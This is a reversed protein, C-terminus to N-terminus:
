QQYIYHHLQRKNEEFDVDWLASVGNKVTQNMTKNAPIRLKTEMKAGGSIVSSALGVADIMGINTELNSWMDSAIGLIQGVNAGEKVRKLVAELMQRQRDTRQYDANGVHRIRSYSLAQIGTLLTDGGYSTLKLSDKNELYWARDYGAAEAQEGLSENIKDMEEKTVNVRVGDLRDIVKQFGAFNVMAYQTINLDFLENVLKMVAEPGGYENVSNLKIEKQAGSKDTIPVMMDRMLSTLKVRGDRVNVSAIMITDTRSKSNLDRSDSGLLLINRWDSSLGQAVSLNATDIQEEPSVPANKDELITESERELQPESTEQVQGGPTPAPATVPKPGAGFGKVIFVGALVVAVLVAALFVYFRGTARKKRRYKNGM